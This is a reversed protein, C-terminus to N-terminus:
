GIEHWEDREIGGSFMLFGSESRKLLYLFLGTTHFPNIWEGSFTERLHDEIDEVARLRIQFEKGTLEHKQLVTRCVREVKSLWVKTPEKLPKYERKVLPCKKYYHEESDCINCVIPVKRKPTLNRQIFEIDNKTQSNDKLIKCVRADNDVALTTEMEHGNSLLNTFETSNDTLSHIDGNRIIREIIDRVFASIEDDEAENEKYASTDPPLQPHLTKYIDSNDVTANSESLVTLPDSQIGDIIRENEIKNKTVSLDANGIEKQESNEKEDKSQSEKHCEECPEDVSEPLDKSREEVKPLVLANEKTDESIGNIERGNVPDTLETIEEEEERKEENESSIQGQKSENKADERYKLDIVSNSISSISQNVEMTTIDGQQRLSDDQISFASDERQNIVEDEMKSEEKDSSVRGNVDIEDYVEKPGVEESESLNGDKNKM